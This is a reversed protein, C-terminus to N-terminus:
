RGWARALILVCLLSVGLSWIPLELGLLPPYPTACLGDAKLLWPLLDSVPQSNIVTELPDVGCSTGPHKLVWVHYGAAAAGALGTLVGGIIALRRASGRLAVALLASLAVGIFGLRQLICLPCPQWDHMHQLYLAAALAALAILSAAELGHDNVVRIWNRM